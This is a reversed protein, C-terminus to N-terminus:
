APTMIATFGGWFQTFRAHSIQTINFSSSDALFVNNSDGGRVVLIHGPPYREPPFSVIVPTGSNATDIVQSLSLNHGWTTKFHFHNGTHAIGSEELLGEQPTIEHIQSEVQLIETIRYNHGYSNIVETMAAASCASDFWTNYEQTSQYQARDLQSLRVLDQSAHYVAPQATPAPQNAQGFLVSTWAVQHPFIQGYLYFALLFLTSLGPLIVKWSIHRDILGEPYQSRPRNPTRVVSRPVVLGTNINVARSMRSARAPISPLPMQTFSEEDGILSRRRERTSVPMSEVIRRGKSTVLYENHPDSQPAKPSLFVGMLTILLAIFFLVVLIFPM